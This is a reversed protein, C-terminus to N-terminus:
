NDEPAYDTPLMDAVRQNSWYGYTTVSLPDALMGNIYFIVSQRSLLLSSTLTENGGDYVVQMPPTFSLTREFGFEGRTFLTGAAVKWRLSSADSNRGAYIEYVEFGQKESNNQVLSTLFHRLSGLYTKRRNEKWRTFEKEDRSELPTFRTRCLLEITTQTQLPALPEAPVTPPVYTRPSVVDSPTLRPTPRPERSQSPASKLPKESSTYYDLFCRVQYGLVLNQIELPGRATATFMGTGGIAFDLVEPNLVRCHDANPTSGLFEKLFRQLNEKWEKPEKAEIDVGGVQVPQQRLHFDVEYITTDILHLMKTQAVYGVLSAVIQQNGLQVDRLMFRGESDAAAGITSNSVFVNTLPLPSRTSDDLVRGKVITHSISQPYIMQPVFFFSLAALQAFLLIKAARRLASVPSVYKEKGGEGFIEVIGFHSM